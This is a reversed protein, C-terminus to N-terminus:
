GVAGGGFIFILCKKANQISKDCRIPEVIAGTNPPPAPMPAPIMDSCDILTEPDNGLISLQAMVESFASGFTSPNNILTQWTSQTRIDAAINADSKLRIEWTFPSATTDTPEISNNSITGPLLVEKYFEVDFVQPTSDLYPVTTTDDNIDASAISHAGLLAVVDTPDFGVDSFRALIQDVSDSPLPITGDAAPQIPDPRGFFYPIAPAGPCTTLGVAATFQLFDGASINHNNLFPQLVSVAVGLRENAAYEMEVCDFVLISGDAGNGLNTTTNSSWGMADHFAVRLASRAVSSCVEGAFYNTQLDELVPILACCEANQVTQGQPCVFSDALAIDQRIAVM